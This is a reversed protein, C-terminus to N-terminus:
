FGTREALDCAVHRTLADGVTRCFDARGDGNVDKMERTGAYGWDIGVISNFGYPIGYGSSPCALQCSLFTNPRLGVFRCYDPRGDGNVDANARFDAYGPDVIGRPADCGEPWATTTATATNNSPRPDSTDSHATVTAAISGVTPLTYSVACSITAGSALIPAPTCTAATAGDVSCTANTAPGPGSNTCTATWSVVTGATANAPLGSVGAQMDAETSGFTVEVGTVSTAIAAGSNVDRADVAASLSYRGAASGTCTWTFTETVGGAIRIPATASPVTRTSAAEAATCSTGDAPTSSPTVATVDSTAGGDSNALALMITVPTGVAPTASSPTLTATLAAPSNVAVSVPAAIETSVTEGTASDVGTASVELSVNGAHSPTCPWTFSLQQDSGVSSPPAPSVAGFSVSGGDMSSQTPAKLVFNTIESGSNAITATLTFTQGM